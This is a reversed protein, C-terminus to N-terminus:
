HTKHQQQQTHTSYTYYTFRENRMTSVSPPFGSVGLAASQQIYPNTSDTEIQFRTGSPKLSIYKAGLGGVGEIGGSAKKPTWVDVIEVYLGLGRVVYLKEIVSYIVSYRRILITDFRIM